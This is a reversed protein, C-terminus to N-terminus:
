LQCALSMNIKYVKFTTTVAMQEVNCSLQLKHGDLQAGATMRFVKM